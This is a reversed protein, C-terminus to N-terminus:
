GHLAEEVLRRVQLIDGRPTRGQRDARLGGRILDYDKITLLVHIDANLEDSRHIFHVDSVDNHNASDNRRPELRLGMNVVAIEALKADDCYLDLHISSHKTATGNWVAGTLHPRFQMLRDMWILALRRLALLDTPQTMGHFLSLHERVAQEIEQNDPLVARRSAGSDRAARRKAAGYDLGDEIVLRAASAAIESRLDQMRPNQM